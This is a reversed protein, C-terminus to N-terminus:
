YSALNCMPKPTTPNLTIAVRCEDIAADLDGIRYLGQALALRADQSDPSVLVARRLDSLVIVDDVQEYSLHEPSPTEGSTHQDALRRFFTTPVRGCSPPVDEFTQAFLSDIPLRTILSTLLLTVLMLRLRM